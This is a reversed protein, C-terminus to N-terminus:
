RIEYYYLVYTKLILNILNVIYFYYIKIKFIQSCNIWQNSCVSFIQNIKTRTLIIIIFGYHYLINSSYFFRSYINEANNLM